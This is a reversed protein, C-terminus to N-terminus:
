GGSRRRCEAAWDFLHQVVDMAGENCLLGIDALHAAMSKLASDETVNQSRIVTSVEQVTPLRNSVGFAPLTFDRGALNDARDIQAMLDRAHRDGMTEYFTLRKRIDLLECRVRAGPPRSVDPAEQVLPVVLDIAKAYSEVTDDEMLQKLQLKYLGFAPPPGRAGQQQSATRQHGGSPPRGSGPQQGGSPPRGISLPRGISAPRGGSPPRASGPQQIGSLPRSGSPHRGSPVGEQQSGTRQHGAGGMGSGRPMPTPPRHESESAQQQSVTRQHNGSRQRSSSATPSGTAGRAPAERVGGSSQSPGRSHSSSAAERSTTSPRPPVATDWLSEYGREVVCQDLFDAGNIINKSSVRQFLRRLFTFMDHLAQFAAQLPMASSSGLSIDDYQTVFKQLKDVMKYTSYQAWHSDAYDSPLAGKYGDTLPMEDPDTPCRPSPKQFLLRPSSPTNLTLGSVDLGGSADPTGGTTLFTVTDATPLEALEPETAVELAGLVTPRLLLARAFAESIESLSGVWACRMRLLNRCVRCNIPDQDSPVCRWAVENTGSRVVGEDDVEHIRCFACKTGTRGTPFGDKNFTTPMASPDGITNTAMTRALTKERESSPIQQPPGIPTTTRSETIRLVQKLFDFDVKKVTTRGYDLWWDPPQQVQQQQLHRIIGLAEVYGRLPRWTTYQLRDNTQAYMRIWHGGTDKYELRIGLRNAYHGDNYEPLEPHRAYPIAHHTDHMIEFTFWVKTDKSMKLTLNEKFILRMEFSPHQGDRAGVPHGLKAATLTLQPQLPVTRRYLDVLGDPGSITTKIWTIPSGEREGRIGPTTWNLGHGGFSDRSCGGPWGTAAKVHTMISSLKRALLRKDLASSYNDAKSPALSPQANSRGSPPDKDPPSEDYDAEMDVVATQQQMSGTLLDPHYTELLLMLLLECWFQFVLKPDEETTDCLVVMHHENSQNWAKYQPYQKTKSDQEHGYRRKTFNKTSGVAIEPGRSPERPFDSHQWTYVGSRQLQSRDVEQAGSIIEALTFNQKNFVNALGANNVGDCFATCAQEIFATDNSLPDGLAQKYVEMFEELDARHDRIGILTACAAKYLKSGNRPVRAAIQPPDQISQTEVVWDGYKRTRGRETYSKPVWGHEIGRAPIAVEVWDNNPGGVALIKGEDGKVLSVSNHVTYDRAWHHTARFPFGVAGDAGAM